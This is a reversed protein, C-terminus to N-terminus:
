QLLNKMQKIMEGEDREDEDCMQQKKKLREKLVEIEKNKKKLNEVVEEKEKQRGDQCQQLNEKVQDLEKRQCKLEIEKM